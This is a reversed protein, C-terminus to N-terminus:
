RNSTVAACHYSDEVASLLLVILSTDANESMDALHAASTGHLREEIMWPLALCPAFRAQQIGLIANEPRSTVIQTFVLRAVKGKGNIGYFNDKTKTWETKVFFFWIHYGLFLGLALAILIAEVAKNKSDM